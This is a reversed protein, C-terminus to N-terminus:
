EYSITPDPEDSVAAEAASEPSVSATGGPVPVTGGEVSAQAPRGRRRRRGGRRRRRGQGAAAMTGEGAVPTEVIAEADEGAESESGDDIGAEPTEIASVIREDPTEAMPGADNEADCAAPRADASADAAAREQEQEQEEARRAQRIAKEARRKERWHEVPEPPPMPTSALTEWDFVVGPHRAEITQRVEEDFPLRGVRVGPPTRYWYLIRNRTPKGRRVVAHMLYTHEYGRKDRSFRLFPM